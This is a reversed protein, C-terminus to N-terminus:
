VVFNTQLPVYEALNKYFDLKVDMREVIAEIVLDCDHAEDISTTFVMQCLVESKKNEAEAKLLMYIETPTM